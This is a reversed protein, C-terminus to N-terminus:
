TLQINEKNHGNTAQNNGMKTELKQLPHSLCDISNKEPKSQVHTMRPLEGCYQRMTSNQNITLLMHMTECIERALVVQVFIEDYFSTM